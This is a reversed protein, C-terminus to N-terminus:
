KKNLVQIEDRDKDSIKGYNQKLNQVVLKTDKCVNQIHKMENDFESLTTEFKAQCETQSNTVNAKFEAFKAKFENM